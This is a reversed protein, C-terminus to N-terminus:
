WRRRARKDSTGGLWGHPPSAPRRRFFSPHIDRGVVGSNQYFAQTSVGPALGGLRISPVGTNTGAPFVFRPSVCTPRGGKSLRPRPTVGKSVRTRPPFQGNHVRYLWPLTTNSPPRVEPKHSFVVRSTGRAAASFFHKQWGRCMIPLPLSGWEKKNVFHNSDRSSYDVMERQTNGRTYKKGCLTKRVSISPPDEPCCRATGNRLVAAPTFIYGRGRPSIEQDCESGLPPVVKTNYPLWWCPLRKPQNDSECFLSYIRRPIIM